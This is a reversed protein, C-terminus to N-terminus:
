ATRRRDLLYSAVLAVAGGLYLLTPLKIGFFALMMLAYASFSLAFGLPFSMRFASLILLILLFGTKAYYAQQAVRLAEVATTTEQYKAFIDRGAFFDFQMLLNVAVYGAVVVFIVIRNISMPTKGTTNPPFTALASCRPTMPAAAESHRRSSATAESITSRWRGRDHMSTPSRRTSTAIPSSRCSRGFIEERDIAMQATVGLVLSPALTHARGPV